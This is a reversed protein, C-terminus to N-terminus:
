PIGATTSKGFVLLEALAWEKQQASLGIMGNISEKYTNVRQQPSLNAAVRPLFVASLIKNQNAIFNYNSSPVEGGGDWKIFKYNENAFADLSVNQWRFYQGNGTALGGSKPLISIKIEYPQDLAFWESEFFDYLITDPKNRNLYTWTKTDSEDIGYRYLYPFAFNTSKKIKDVPQIDKSWDSSCVWVWGLNERYIWANSSAQQNIYAWGLNEHFVWPFSDAFYYGFWDAWMWGESGEIFSGENLFQSFRESFIEGHFNIYGSTISEHSYVSNNSGKLNHEVFVAESYTIFDKFEDFSFEEIVIDEQGLSNIVTANIEYAVVAVPENARKVESNTKTYIPRVFLNETTIDNESRGLLNAIDERSSLLKTYSNGAEWSSALQYTKSTQFTSVNSNLSEVLFADSQERRLALRFGVNILKSRPSVGLRRASRLDNETSDFGGGRCVKLPNSYSKTNTSEDANYHFFDVPNHYSNFSDSIYTPGKPDVFAGDYFDEYWDSCWEKVNGHMDFLGFANPFFSGVNLTQNSENLLYNAQQKSIKEGTNFATNTGARCAYEWEAETPLSYSWDSTLRGASKEKANLLKIFHNAEFWSVSEVPRTGTKPFNSPNTDYGDENDRMVVEYQAQTVEHVGLYFDKTLSVRHQKENTSHGLETPESGMLFSVPESDNKVPILVMEMGLASKVQYSDGSINSYTQPLIFLAGLIYFNILTFRILHERSFINFFCFRM